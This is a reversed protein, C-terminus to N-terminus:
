SSRTTASRASSTASSGRRPRRAGCTRSSSFGTRRRSRRRARVADVSRLTTRARVSTRWARAFTTYTQVPHLKADSCQTSRDASGTVCRSAARDARASCRATPSSRSRCSTSTSRRAQGRRLVDPRIRRATAVALRAYTSMVLHKSTGVRRSCAVGRTPRKSTPFSLRSLGGAATGPLHERIRKFARPFFATIQAVEHGDHAGREAKHNLQAGLSARGYFSGRPAAGEGASRVCHRASDRGGAPRPKKPHRLLRLRVTTFRASKGRGVNAHSGGRTLVRIVIPDDDRASSLETSRGRLHADYTRTKLQPRERNLM